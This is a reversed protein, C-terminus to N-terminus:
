AMAKILGNLCDLDDAKPFSYTFSPIFHSWFEARFHETGVDCWAVIVLTVRLWLLAEHAQQM